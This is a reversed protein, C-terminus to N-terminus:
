PVIPVNTPRIGGTHKVSADSDTSLIERSKLEDVVEQASGDVFGDLEDLLEMTTLNNLNPM